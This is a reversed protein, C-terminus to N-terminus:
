LKSWFFCNNYDYNRGQKDKLKNGREVKPEWHLDVIKGIKLLTQIIHRDGSGLNRSKQNIMMTLTKRESQLIEQSLFYISYM